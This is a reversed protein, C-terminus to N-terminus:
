RPRYCRVRIDITVETSEALGAIRDRLTVDDFHRANPGMAIVARIEDRGLLVTSAVRHESVAVFLPDLTAALRIPKRVDVNILGLADVL